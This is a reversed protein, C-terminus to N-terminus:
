YAKLYEKVVESPEGDLRIKGNELWVIRNCVQKLVDLDHAVFVMIHAREMLKLIRETAKNKFNADGVSFVEDLLLIDGNIMTSIAFALRLQMGSSYSKIPYDIFEGINAFEVIEDIKEELERPTAGLLLGRYFINERGTAEMEFGTALEFLSCLNGAVELSGSAIPYIGAIAKLLTSKGAGNRGIVGVKEGAKVELTLGKLAHVDELKLTKATIHAAEFIVQKFTRSNYTTSPYFLHIDNLKIYIEREKESKAVRAM